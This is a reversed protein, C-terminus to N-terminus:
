SRNGVRRSRREWTASSAEPTTSHATQRSQPPRWTPAARRISAMVQSTLASYPEGARPRVIGVELDLDLDDLRRSALDRTAPELDALPVLAVGVGARVAAIVARTSGIEAHVDLEIGRRGFADLIHERYACGPESLVIPRGVLCAAVVASGPAALEHDRPAVLGIPERFLPEFTVDLEPPPASCVAFALRGDDVGSSVLATGGVELRLKITSLDRRLGALLPVLDLHASPEIAGFRLTGRAGTGLDAADDAIAELHGVIADAHRRLSEGLDTLALQRGTRIFLPGGLTSELRQVHLTVTSAGIGLRDAARAFNGADVICRFTALHRLDM